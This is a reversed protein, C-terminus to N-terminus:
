NERHPPGGGGPPPAAGGGTTGTLWLMTGGPNLIAAFGSDLMVLESDPNGWTGTNFALQNASTTIVINGDTQFRATGGAAQTGSAWVATSGRYNVLNGDTQFCLKGAGTAAWVCTGVPITSNFTLVQAPAYSSWIDGLPQLSLATQGAGANACRYNGTSGMGIMLNLCQQLALQGFFNPHASENTRNTGSTFNIWNAWEAVSQAPQATTSFQTNKNCLEHGRLAASVDMFQANSFGSNTNSTRVAQRIAGALRPVLVKNVWEVDAAYFPCGSGPRFDAQAPLPAPYSQVILRYDGNHYGAATMTARIDAIAHVVNYMMSGIHQRTQSDDAVNCATGLLIDASVCDNVIQGFGLDNGGISLVIAKVNFNAAIPILQETQPAEGKFPQGGTATRWVNPTAAGSCALNIRQFTAPSAGFVEASDSRHCGGEHGILGGDFWNLTNGYVGVGRDTAPNDAQGAFRGGEGAIFSDGMSVVTALGQTPSALASTTGTLQVAATGAAIVALSVALRAKRFV